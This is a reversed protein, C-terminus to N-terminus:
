GVLHRDRRAGAQRRTLRAPQDAAAQAVLQQTAGGAVGVDDDVAVRLAERTREGVPEASRDEGRRVLEARPADEEAARVDVHRRQAGSRGARRPPRPGAFGRGGAPSGPELGIQAQAVEGHVRQRPRQLAAADDVRQVAEVIQGGASEAQARGAREGVVREAHQPERAQRAVVREHRVVDRGGRGDGGGRQERLDAALPDAVLERRGERAPIGGHGEAVEGHPARQRHDKGLDVGEAPHLLVGVVVEVHELM